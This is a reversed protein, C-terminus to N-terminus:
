STILYKKRKDEIEEAIRLNSEELQNLYTQGKKLSDEIMRLMVQLGETENRTEKLEEQLRLVQESAVQDLRSAKSKMLVERYLEAKNTEKILRLGHLQRDAGKLERDKLRLFSCCCCCCSKIEWKKFVIKVNYFIFIILPILM